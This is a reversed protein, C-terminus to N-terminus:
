RATDTARLSPRCCAQKDRRATRRTLYHMKLLSLPSLANTTITAPDAERAAVAGIGRESADGTGASRGAAEPRCTGGRHLRGVAVLYGARFAQALDRLGLCGALFQDAGLDV